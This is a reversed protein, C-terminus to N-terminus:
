VLTEKWMRERGPFRHLEQVAQSLGVSETPGPCVTPFHSTSYSLKKDM